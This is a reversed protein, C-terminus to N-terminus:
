RWIGKFLSISQHVKFSKMPSFIIEAYNTYPHVCVYVDRIGQM